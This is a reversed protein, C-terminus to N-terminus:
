RCQLAQRQTSGHPWWRVYLGCSRKFGGNCANGGPKGIRRYARHAPQRNFLSGRVHWLLIALTRAAWCARAVARQLSSCMMALFLPNVPFSAHLLYCVRMEELLNSGDNSASGDVGLGVPINLRLMEPVRAVGSSLKMNSIPCHAIGTGTEALAHLEADNFHIGHAYWVDPGTWGLSQM